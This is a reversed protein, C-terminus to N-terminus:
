LTFQHTKIIAAKGRPMTGSLHHSCEWGQAEMGPSRRFKVLSTSSAFHRLLSTNHLTTLIDHFIM